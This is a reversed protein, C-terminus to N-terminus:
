KEDIVQWLSCCGKRPLVASDDLKLGVRVMLRCIRDRCHSCNRCRKSDDEKAEGVLYKYRTNFSLRNNKEPKINASRRKRWLEGDPYEWTMVEDLRGEKKNREIFEYYDVQFLVFGCCPCVPTILGLPHKAARWGKKTDFWMECKGCYVALRQETM